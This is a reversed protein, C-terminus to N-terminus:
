KGDESLWNSINKHTPILYEKIIKGNVDVYGFERLKRKIENNIIIIAEDIAIRPNVGDLVVKNWANSIERELMYDGPVKGTSRIWNWQELLVPKSESPWASEKFAELNATMYIFKDGLTSQIEYSFESQVHASHWWRLFKWSLDKKKSNSFIISSQGFTPDWKEVVGEKNLIGPITTVDWLGALEPAAYKLQIYTGSGMIGIPIKGTKFHQFFNSTQIPLNYVTFLDTMFEFAQYSGAQNVVTTLTNQDYLSGDFQYILPTTSGFGKFSSASGLPSYFNMNYKQIIPLINVVEEWTNPVEIGLQNLIDKRYFLLSVNQTEPIAYVGEEFIYPIFTNPNFDKVVEYFGEYTSLDEIIERIAFEFPRNSSVGLIADPTTKAVNSLIIKNEDKMLELEVKINTNPTFEEDIIKQILEMYLRSKNVWVKITNEDKVKENRYKPNFFSYVFASIGKGIKVFINVNAKPLVDGGYVFLKDLFLPQSLLSPLILNIKAYASNDDGEFRNMYTPLIEPDRYFKNIIERAQKVQSVIPDNKNGIFTALENAIIDLDGVLKNLRSELNPLYKTIKWKRDKDVLGGTIQKVDLSIESIIELVDIISHYVDAVLLYNVKLEILHTGKELYFLFPKNKNDSLVENKWKTSHSFRYNELEKFLIKNDIKIERFSPLSSSGSQYYKLAINYLGSELIEFQYTLSDGGSQYNNGNIVNLVRKKYSYPTVSPDQQYQSSISRKSKLYYDEAEIEVKDKIIKEDKYANIYEQYTIAKNEDCDITIDGILLYGENVRIKVSNIEEDFLFFLPENHFYNPDILGERYHWSSFILSKPLLEDGFRDYKKKNEIQWDVELNILNMEVFQIEDNIYITINPTLKSEALVLYDIYIQYLGITDLEVNFNIEDLPKLYLTEKNYGYSSEKNQLLGGNILSPPILYNDQGKQYKEQWLLNVNYYNNILENRSQYDEFSTLVNSNNDEDAISNYYLGAVLLTTFVIIFLGIIKKM